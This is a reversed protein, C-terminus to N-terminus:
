APVVMLYTVVPAAAFGFEGSRKARGFPGNGSLAVTGCSFARMPVVAETALAFEEYDDVPEPRVEALREAAPRPTLLSVGVLVVVSLVVGAAVYNYMYSNQLWTPLSNMYYHPQRRM